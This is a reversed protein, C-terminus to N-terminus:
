IYMYKIAKYFLPHAYLRKQLVVLWDNSCREVSTESLRTKWNFRNQIHVSTDYLEGLWKSQKDKLDM